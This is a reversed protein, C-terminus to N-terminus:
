KPVQGTTIYSEQDAAFIRRGNSINGEIEQVAEAETRGQRIAEKIGEMRFKAEEIKCSQAFGAKFVAPDMKTMMGIKVTERLCGIFSTAAVDFSSQTVASQNQATAQATLGFWTACSIVIIQCRM